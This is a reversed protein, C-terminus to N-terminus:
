SKIRDVGFESFTVPFLAM